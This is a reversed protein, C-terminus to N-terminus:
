VEEPEYYVEGEWKTVRRLRVPEQLLSLAERAKALTVHASYFVGEEFGKPDATLSVELSQTEFFLNMVGARSSWPGVLTYPGTRTQIEFESGGFGRKDDTEVYFRVLGDREALWLTKGGVDFLEYIFPGAPIEDVLIELGAANLSHENWRVNCKLPRM